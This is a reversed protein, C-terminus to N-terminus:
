RVIEASRRANTLSVIGAFFIYFAGEDFISGSIFYRLFFSCMFFLWMIKGNLDTRVFTNLIPVALCILFMSGLIWGFSLFVEYVINHAYTNNPLFTRDYFMSNVDLISMRSLAARCFRGIRDRGASHLLEGQQIRKLVYSNAAFESHLLIPFFVHIVVIVAAVLIAGKIMAKVMAPRETCGGMTRATYIFTCFLLFWLLSGRAGYVTCALLGIGTVIWQVKQHFLYASVFVLCCFPLLHYSFSMYNTKNVGTLKSIFSITILMDTFLICVNDQFLVMWDRVRTIVLMSIPLYFAFIAEVEASTFYMRQSDNTCLVYALGYLLYWMGARIVDRKRIGYKILINLAYLLCLFYIGLIFNFSRFGLLNLLFKMGDYLIHISMLFLACRISQLNEKERSQM